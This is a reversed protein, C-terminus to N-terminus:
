LDHCMHAMLRRLSHRFSLDLEAAARRRGNVARAAAEAGATVAYPGGRLQEPLLVAEPLLHHLTLHTLARLTAWTLRRWLAPLEAAQTTPREDRLAAEGAAEVEETQEAGRAAARDLARVQRAPLAAAVSGGTPLHPRRLRSRGRTCIHVILIGRQNAAAAVVTMRLAMMVVAAARPWPVARRQWTPGCPRATAEAAAALM